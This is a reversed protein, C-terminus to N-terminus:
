PAAPPPKCEPLGCSGTRGDQVWSRPVLVARTRCWCEVQLMTYDRINGDLRVNDPRAACGDYREVPVGYGKHHNLFGRNPIM